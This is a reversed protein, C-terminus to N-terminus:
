LGALKAAMEAATKAAIEKLQTWGWQGAKNAVAAVKEKNSMTTAIELKSEVYEIGQLTMLTSDMVWQVPIPSQDIEIPRSGRILGENHLKLVAINFQERSMGLAESTITSMDWVDKQYETYIAVLVKQKNDLEM